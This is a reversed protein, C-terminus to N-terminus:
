RAAGVRAAADASPLGAVVVAREADAAPLRSDGGDAVVADHAGLRARHWELVRVVAPTLVPDSANSISVDV